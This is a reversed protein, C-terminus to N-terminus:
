SRRGAPKEKETNKLVIGRTYVELTKERLGQAELILECVERVAGEGGHCSTVLHVYPLIEKDGNGVAVALGVRQFIEIDVWDDGMYAIEADQLRKNELLWEYGALKPRMGQLVTEIRLDRCRHLLAESSRSTLIAVEIGNRRLLNIGFGDRVHFTKIEEGRDSYVIHGDTLVGDVDLLLLKIKRARNQVDKM